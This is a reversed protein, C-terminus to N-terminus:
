GGAAGVGLAFLERLEDNSLETLWGEGAGVVQAALATKREIMRDIREELTGACIFKHVQVRQTQGIRHSRDTAQNEVSPNWWRDFHVVVRARTLNLGTGGARLSLIFFPPADAEGQFRAVMRDRRARETRGHLFLAERGFVEQLHRQILAGMEAFQTFILARDGAAIMEELMEVLRELKGSRGALASQDGLFHAPHNCVQKLRTLASLVLGKRAIGEAASLAPEIEKLVAAYLSAQERTLPCYTKVEIKAPLDAIISRDSKLRRLIFPGTARKLREAAERDGYVQIPKFFTERFAGPGGLLGPNLFDMIAWLDGVHNEVPTGTLAVRFGAALARAARSQHTGPNKINQAEDLVVGAWEVAGFLERDRNLLGYSSIVLAHARARRGFDAAKARKLGHHVMVGLAPTFREAERAWNTIVTTPCVLLVPRPEGAERLRALFALTQVTKGLGMDDALCAGLGWPQLFALWSYGRVQYPRLTGRFGAPPALEGYRGPSRLRELLEGLAGEAEIGALPFGRIGAKLGLALRVVEGAKLVTPPGSNLAEAAARIQAADLEVWQGRLMVLPLKCAALLQLEALTLPDGGLALRWDVRVLAELGLEAGAALAPGTVAAHVAIQRRTGGRTWWAPLMVGFGAAELAPAERALFAHAGPLDMRCEGPDPAALSAGVPASIGAALGLASFLYERVDGAIQQLLRARRSRGNWVEKVPVLLSRDALPQLLYRLTWEGSPITLGSDAAPGDVAPEELRFCLRCAAGATADVPRRWAAVQAALEAVQRRSKWRIVPDPGRLARIWADHVSEAARRAAPAAHRVLGDLAAEIFRALLVLPPEGPPAGDAEPGLCRAAPPMRRALAELRARETGAFVPQWRAAHGRGAAVIGPLYVRRAALEAAFRFAAVWFALDSGAAVGRALPERGICAALFAAGGAGAFPLATVRWPAIAAAEAGPPTEAILPSSPLPRRGATPLWAAASV